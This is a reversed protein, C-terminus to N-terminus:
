TRSRMVAHALVVPNDVAGVPVLARRRV